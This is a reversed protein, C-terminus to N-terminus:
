DRFERVARGAAALNALNMESYKRSLIVGDAGGRLAAAVAAHTDDPSAKRGRDTPIGIDIGPYIRSQGAVGEVARRTEREVYDASLGAGALGDLPAEHEYNLLHNNFALLEDKPVDHFVTTWINGIFNAYREGGCNNYVVPKLFDAMTALDAYSRAARFIPNFSNVHEIHFGVQLDARIGKVTDHVNKLVQYKGTDFLKNWLIIEPYDLLLRWFEVFYGDTPRQGAQSAKVYQDLQRYGERAREFNLGSQRAAKQHYECFCTVQSSAIRAYHSAGLANLLPGCRENFLVFGDVDNSKCIDTALAMWFQQVNPNLLCLSGAKNGYLDVEACQDVGPMSPKWAYDNCGCFVKMGRKRTKPLVEQLIDLDGHDPARPPRLVTNRYLEPHPTAYYGGHFDTQEQAGHDPFPFGPIQRGATGQDSSFTALVLADVAGKEQLIDLVQETGEDVFSVAGIQIANTKGANLPERPSTATPSLNNM